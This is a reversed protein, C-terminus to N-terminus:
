TATGKGPVTYITYIGIRGLEGASCGNEGLRRTIRFAAGRGGFVGCLVKDGAKRFLGWGPYTGGGHMSGEWGGPCGAEDERQNGPHVGMQAGLGDGPIKLEEIGVGVWVTEGTM